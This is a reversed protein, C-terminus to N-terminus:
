CTPVLNLHRFDLVDAHRACVRQLFHCRVFNVLMRILVNFSTDWFAKTDHTHHHRRWRRLQRMRDVPSTTWELAQTHAASATKVHMWSLQPTAFMACVHCMCLRGHGVDASACRSKGSVFTHWSARCTHPPCRRQGYIPMQTPADIDGVSANINFTNAVIATAHTVVKSARGGSNTAVGALVTPM